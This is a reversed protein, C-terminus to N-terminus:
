YGARELAERMIHNPVHYTGYGATRRRKTRTPRAEVMDKEAVRQFDMNIPMGCMTDKDTLKRIKSM